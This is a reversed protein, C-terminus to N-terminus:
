KLVEAVCDAFVELGEELAATTITLPPALKIAERGTHVVLLGAQFCRESIKSCSSSLPNGALDRVLFGAVLGKANVVVDYRDQYKAKIEILKKSLISGLIDAQHCLNRELIEKLNAHGAAVVVPHASHTSSMSGVSPLDLLDSRGLVMSLPLSSSAGKGCCILDPTIDYHEFGFMKGTRGFGSQMEDFTVLFDYNKSAERVERIFKDPYFYAGWGQYTELMIGAIHGEAGSGLKNFLKELDAQFSHQEDYPFPLHHIFPENYGIWQKQMTNSGLFQAGLTRGHWNGDLSIIINKEKNKKQGHMRMLKLAVETAETGASLLFAKECFSPTNKILYELYELRPLTPYNYAHMLDSNLVEIIAKKISNNSHGSNAVFITSTFDLWMNGWRDYVNFDKASNWVMPYSGHMARTEVESLRKILEVDAKVPLPTSIRRYETEFIKVPQPYTSFNYESM